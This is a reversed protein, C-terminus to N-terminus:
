GIIMGPGCFDSAIKFYERIRAPFMEVIFAAMPGYVMGVLAMLWVMVAIAGVTNVHAATATFGANALVGKYAQEDFGSLQTSGIRIVTGGGFPAPKSTYSLGNRSFFKRAKDCDSVPAAFLSFTCANGQVVIPNRSSFAALDPNAFNALAHFSPQLTLAGLLLGAIM